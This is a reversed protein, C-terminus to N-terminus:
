CWGREGGGRRESHISLFDMAAHDRLFSQGESGAWSGKGGPNAGTKQPDLSDSYFGEAGITLLQRWEKKM